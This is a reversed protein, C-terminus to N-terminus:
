FCYWFYQNEKQILEPEGTRWGREFVQQAHKQLKQSCFDWQLELIDEGHNRLKKVESASLQRM